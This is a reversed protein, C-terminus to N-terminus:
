ATETDLEFILTSLPPLRLEISQSRGHSAVDESLLGGLNGRGQGTM